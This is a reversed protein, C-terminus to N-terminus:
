NSLPETLFPCIQAANSVACAFARGMTMSPAQLGIGTVSSINVKGQPGGPIAEKQLVAAFVKM